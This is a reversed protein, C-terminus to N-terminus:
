KKIPYSGVGECYRCFIPNTEGPAHGSGHCGHCPARGFASRFIAIRKPDRSKSIRELESLESVFLRMWFKLVWKV